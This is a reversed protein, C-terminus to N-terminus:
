KKWSCPRGSSHGGCVTCRPTDDTDHTDNLRDSSVSADSSVSSVSSVCAYRGRQPRTLRGANVLRDLYTRAARDEMALVSAVEAVSVPGPQRSVWQVIEASRDGLGATTRTEEAKRAAEALTAGDIAWSGGTSTVAYENEEVDRGTVRIIGASDNRKRSLNVTFDASGNLGNTGSTSDMWDEGAQKRVHHVILVAAGPHDDAFGKLQSGIRYDREYAGEGPMARPLVKGLTDLIVLPNSDRHQDLWEPILALVEAPTARTLYHLSPPIPEGILLQRCRAQLRREGDELALYLVPRPAGTPIKGLAQGGAAVALAIGLVCWSKGVKPPGTFLGLGEPILDPVTWALPPFEEADLQDGTKIRALPGEGPPPEEAPPEEAGPPTAKAPGWTLAPEEDLPQPHAPGDRLAGDWASRLTRDIEDAGLGADLAAPRLHSAVTGQDLYGGLAIRYMRLAASNLTHNRQGEPATRAARTWEDLAKQAWPHPAGNAPTPRPTGAPGPTKGRLTEMFDVM